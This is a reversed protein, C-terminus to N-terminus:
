PHCCRPRRRVGDGADHLLRRLRQQPLLWRQWESHSTPASAVGLSARCRFGIGAESSWFQSAFISPAQRGILAASAAPMKAIVGFRQGDQWPATTSM